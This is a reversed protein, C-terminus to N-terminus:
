MCVLPIFTLPWGSMIRDCVLRPHPLLSNCSGAIEKGDESAGPPLAQKIQQTVDGLEVRLYGGGGPGDAEGGGAGGGADGAASTSSNRNGLEVVLPANQKVSAQSLTM